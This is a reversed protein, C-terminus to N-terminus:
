SSIGQSTLLRRPTHADNASRREPEQGCRQYAAGGTRSSPASLRDLHLGSDGGAPNVLQPQLTNVANQALLLAANCTPNSPQGGQGPEGVGLPLDPPGNFIINGRIRLNTDTTAPSPINTGASPTQSGQISFHNWESRYGPPNYIVNNYIFVSRNPIPEQPGPTATGWGGAELYTRCRAANGDCGRLGFNVEVAHSRQGVRYFTNFALLINYSGNVGMGAGNTDHIVNNIFKIDYTEYHLWPSVMFEFGTGQGATFGGTEGDYLENGEIRFYASGGKLYMCWDGADHVRSRLIHGYQVAVFDLATGYSGSVDCEEVYMFSCQNAKFTEQAAGNSDLLVRRLLVHNCQEFHIADGAPDPVINLGILYLYECNFINLGGTLLATGTGDAAKLIVPYQYAGHRDKMYTPLANEPYAGSVLQICYGSSSLQVGAPIHYWAATITRLADQRSTGGNADDGNVPDVWLETLTPTGIDYDGSVIPGGGDTGITLTLAQIAFGSISDTVKVNLSHTGADVPTGSLTATGSNFKLWKPLAGAISFKYGGSGGAASLVHSYAVGAVGDPLPGILLPSYITIIFNQTIAAIGDSVRVTFPYVGSSGPVPKGWAVGTTSLGLGSPLNGAIISWTRTSAGGVARLVTTRYILGPEGDSLVTTLINLHSNVTITLTKALTYGLSDTLLLGVKYAGKQPPTGSLTGTTSNLSLWVPWAAGRAWAYPSKGGSASLLCFYPSGADANPPPAIDLRPYITITFTRSATQVYARAASDTVKITFSYVKATRSPQGPKGSIVGTRANLTLGAPWNGSKSWKYPTIGFIAQLTESYPALADGNNLSDNTITLATASQVVVSANVSSNVAITASYDPTFGISAAGASVPAAAAALSLIFLTALVVALSRRATLGTM